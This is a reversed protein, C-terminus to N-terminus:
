VKMAEFTSEEQIKLYKKLKGVNMFTIKEEVEELDNLLYNCDSFDMLLTYIEQFDGKPVLDDDYEVIPFHIFNTKSSSSIYGESDALAKNVDIEAVEFADETYVPLNSLHDIM